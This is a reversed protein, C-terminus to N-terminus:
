VRRKGKRGVPRYYRARRGPKTGGTLPGRIFNKTQPIKFISYSRKWLNTAAEMNGEELFSIMKEQLAALKRKPTVYYFMSKM